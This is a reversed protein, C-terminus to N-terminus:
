AVEGRSVDRSTSDLNIDRRACCMEAGERERERERERYPCNLQLTIMSTTMSSCSQLDFHHFNQWDGESVQRVRPPLFLSLSLSSRRRGSRIILCSSFSLSLSPSLMYSPEFPPRYIRAFLRLKYRRFTISDRPLSDTTKKSLCRPIIVARAREM